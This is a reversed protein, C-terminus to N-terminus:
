SCVKKFNAGQGLSQILYKEKVNTIEKNNKQFCYKVREFYVM